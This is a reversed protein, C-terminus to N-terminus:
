NSTNKLLNKDFIVRDGKKINQAEATGASLEIVYLANTDSSFSKPYSEPTVNSIVTVITNNEDIWVIDIPFKMDKMWFSYYSPVPFVFLMAEGPNLAIRGSLGLGQLEETDAIEALFESQGIQVPITKYLSEILPIQPELVSQNNYSVYLIVAIGTLLIATIYIRKNKIFFM